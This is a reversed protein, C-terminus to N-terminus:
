VEEAEDLWEMPDEPLDEMLDDEDVADTPVYRDASWIQFTNLNAVAFTEGAIGYRARLKAPIVIRGTEDVVANVSGSSYIRSLMKKRPGAKMADIRNELREMADVTMCELFENTPHGYVMVFSPNTHDKSTPDWDPDGAELVRRFDAPISM